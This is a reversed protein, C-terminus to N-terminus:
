RQVSTVVAIDVSCCDCPWVLELDASALAMHSLSDQAGAGGSYLSTKGVKSNASLTVHFCTCSLM